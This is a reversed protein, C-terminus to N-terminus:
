AFIYENCKMKLEHGHESKMFSISNELQAQFENKKYEYQAFMINKNTNNIRELLVQAYISPKSNKELIIKADRSAWRNREALVKEHTALWQIYSEECQSITKGSNKGFDLVKKM